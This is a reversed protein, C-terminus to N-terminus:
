RGNSFIDYGKGGGPFKTNNPDFDTELTVNVALHRRQAWLQRARERRARAAAPGDGAATSSDLAEAEVAVNSLLGVVNVCFSRTFISLFFTANTSILSPEIAAMPFVGPYAVNASLSATANSLRVLCDKLEGVSLVESPPPSPLGPITKTALAVAGAVLVGISQLLPRRM